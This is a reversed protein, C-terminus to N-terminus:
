QAGTLNQLWSALDHSGGPLKSLFDSLKTPTKSLIHNNNYDFDHSIHTLLCGEM